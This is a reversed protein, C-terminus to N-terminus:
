QASALLASPALRADDALVISESGHAGPVGQAQSFGIAIGVTLAVVALLTGAPLTGRDQGARHRGIRAIVDAELGELSRPQTMSM